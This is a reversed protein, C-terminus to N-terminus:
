VLKELELVEVIWDGKMFTSGDIPINVGVDTKITYRVRLGDEHFEGPVECIPIFVGYFWSSNTPRNDPRIAVYYGHTDTDVLAITGTGSYINEGDELFGNNTNLLGSSIVILASASFVAVMVLGTIMIKKNLKM